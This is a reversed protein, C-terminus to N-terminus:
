AAKRRKGGVRESMRADVNCVKCEGLGLARDCKPEPASTWEFTPRDSEISQPNYRWLMEAYTIEDTRKM